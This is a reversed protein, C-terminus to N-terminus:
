LDFLKKFIAPKKAKYSKGSVEENGDPFVIENATLLQNTVNYKRKFYTNRDNDGYKIDGIIPYGLYSLHARIQHSKGTILEIKLLTIDENKNYSLKNIDTKIELYGEKPSSILDVKNNKSDKSLYATFLGKAECNGSVIALYYKNITRKRIVESLFRSGHSSKGALIIGSTNRDLRNCVSPKFTKLTEATVEGKERLYDIIAENISYDDKKSKQSLVNVPKNCFIFDSDEYIVDLTINPKHGKDTERGTDPYSNESVSSFKEITEDSLYLKIVDGNKVVTDADAKKDNLVINKKRLMKYIFSTPAKSLYNACIKRLKYGDENKTIIIEKM